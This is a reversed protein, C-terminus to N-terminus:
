KRKNKPITIYSLSNLVFSSYFKLGPYFQVIVYVVIVHEIKCYLYILVYYFSTVM